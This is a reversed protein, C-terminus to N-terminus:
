LPSVEAASVWRPPTCETTYPWVRMAEPIAMRMLGEGRRKIVIRKVDRCTKSTVRDLNWIKSMRACLHAEFDATRCWRACPKVRGRMVELSVLWRFVGGNCWEYVAPVSAAYASCM